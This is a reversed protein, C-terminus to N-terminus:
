LMNVPSFHATIKSNVNREKVPAKYKIMSCHMQYAPSVPINNPCSLYKKPIIKKVQKYFISHGRM